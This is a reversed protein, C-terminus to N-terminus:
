LSLEFMLILINPGFLTDLNLDTADLTWSFEMDRTAAGLMLRSQLKYNRLSLASFTFVGYFEM